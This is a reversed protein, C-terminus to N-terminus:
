EPATPDEFFTIANGDADIVELRQPGSGALVREPAIGRGGVAREWAELDAVAVTLLGSGARERDAVVYISVEPTLRWVAESEHPRMDAPRGFLREYWEEAAPFDSVPVGAFFHAIQV